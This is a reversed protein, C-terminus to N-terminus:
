AAVPISYQHIIKEAISELPLVLRAAGLEVAARPMGYVVCTEENQAITLLGQERLHLMGRAGDTGMGTLLVATSRPGVGLKCASDFLVDVAPRQHHVAPGDSLETVYHDGRWRLLLHSGGPAVVATGPRVIDGDAAERVDFACLENLRNAFATSFRAPIHQVICIGPLAAPLRTLITKLAETGGTSAGMLILTRPDDPTLRCDFRQATVARSGTPPIPRTPTTPHPIGTAAVPRLRPPLSLISSDGVTATNSPRFRANAAARIKGSLQDDDFASWPGDPKDLVDVAGAELAEIAARSGEKALSSVVIVPLPRSKMLLRLFTLGDMRPMEIDLTLVDPSLKLIKERAIYPDCATGVVEIDPQKGLNDCVIRRVLASDDIVLVRIRRNEIM